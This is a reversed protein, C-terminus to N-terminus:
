PQEGKKQLQDYKEKLRGHLLISETLECHEYWRERRKSENERLRQKAQYKANM